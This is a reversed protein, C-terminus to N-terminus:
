EEAPGVGITVPAITHPGDAAGVSALWDLFRGLREAAEVTWRVPAVGNLLRAPKGTADLVIYAELEM